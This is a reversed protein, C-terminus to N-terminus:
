LPRIKIFWQKSLYPEVIADSRESHGVPHVIDETKLLMGQESMKKLLEKRCEFRDLGNFELALENMSGDKNICKPMELGYKVGINFDNPDHAPTCKMVGTGFDVSVYDDFILPTKGM